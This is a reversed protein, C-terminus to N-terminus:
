IEILKLRALRVPEAVAQVPLPALVIFTPNVKKKKKKKTKVASAKATKEVPSTPSGPGIECLWFM